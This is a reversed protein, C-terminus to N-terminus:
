RKRKRKRFLGHEISEVLAEWSAEIINEHVGITGWSSQHDSSEILVRTIAATGKKADIIRVKFDTLEIKELQPYIKAIAKRLAKDLANIPGNGEAFGVIRKDEVM